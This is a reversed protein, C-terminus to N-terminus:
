PVAELTKVIADPRELLINHGANPVVELSSTPLLGRMQEALARFKADMSGALLAIPLHIQPLLPWMNPMRALGLVHMARALGAPHHQRRIRRQEEIVSQALHNLHQSAFLPQKEWEELFMSLAEAPSDRLLLLDIFRQDALARESRESPTKLGPSAGILVGSSFLDPHRSLLVLAVRGGLSYGCICVREKPFDSRVLDAIRDVEDNFSAKGGNPRVGDHGLLTYAATRQKGKTLERIPAWSSAHGTFGHLFVVASASM